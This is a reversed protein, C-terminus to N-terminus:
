SKNRMNDLQLQPISPIVATRRVRSLRTKHGLMSVTQGPSREMRAEASHMNQKQQTSLETCMQSTYNIITDNEKEKNVKQRNTEDM